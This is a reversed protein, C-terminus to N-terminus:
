SDSMPGSTQRSPGERHLVIDGEDVALWGAARESSPRIRRGSPSQSALAPLAPADETVIRKPDAPPPGPDSGMKHPRFNDLPRLARAYVTSTMLHKKSHLHLPRIRPSGLHEPGPRLSRHARNRDQECGRGGPLCRTEWRGRMSWRRSWRRTSVSSSVIPSEPSGFLPSEFNTCVYNILLIPDNRWLPLSTGLRKRQIKNRM